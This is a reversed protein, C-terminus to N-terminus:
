IKRGDDAEQYSAIKAELHRIYNAADHMQDYPDGDHGEQAAIQYLVSAIDGDKGTLPNHTQNLERRAM